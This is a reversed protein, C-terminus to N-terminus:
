GRLAEELLRVYRATGLPKDFRLEFMERSRRGMAVCLQNDNKLSMLASALEQSHGPAVVYGFRGERVTNATECLDPVVAVVPRGMAMTPYLKSPVSVGLTTDKLTVLAVDCCALADCQEAEPIAGWMLVNTLAMESIRKELSSVEIGTGMLVFVMNENQLLSAATLLTDFEALKGLNGFFQAIFKGHVEPHSTYLTSAEKVMPAIRVGDAWNQITVLRDLRVEGLYRQRVLTEMCSGLVVVRTAGRLVARFLSRLVRLLLSHPRMMGLAVANDPFVDMEVVIYPLRCLHATLMGFVPLLAPSSLVVLVSTRSRGLVVRWAAWLCFGVERVSRRALGVHRNTSGTRADILLAAESHYTPVRASTSRRASETIVHVGFGAVVWADAVDQMLQGGSTGDDGFHDAILGICMREATM